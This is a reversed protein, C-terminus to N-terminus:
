FKSPLFYMFLNVTAQLYREKLYAVLLPAIKISNQNVSKAVKLVPGGLERTNRLLILTKLSPVRNSSFSALIASFLGSISLAYVMFLVLLRSLFNQHTKIEIKTGKILIALYGM